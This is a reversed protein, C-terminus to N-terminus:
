VAQLNIGATCRGVDDGKSVIYDANMASRSPALHGSIATLIFAWSSGSTLKWSDFPTCDLEKFRVRCTFSVFCWWPISLAVGSEILGGQAERAAAVLSFRSLFLFRGVGYYGCWGLTRVQPTCQHRFRRERATIRYGTFHLVTKTTGGGTKKRPPIVM